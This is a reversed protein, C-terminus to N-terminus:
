SDSNPAEEAQMNEHIAMRAQAAKALTAQTHAANIRDIRREQSLDMFLAIYSFIFFFHGINRPRFFGSEQLNLILVSIFLWKWVQSRNLRTVNKFYIMIMCILLSLGPIGTQNLIDIYGEHAQNPIWVFQDFLPQLHAADMVWFGGIGWGTWIRDLTLTFVSGWLEIRGTFTLDKGFLGFFQVLFDRAFVITLIMMVGATLIVSTGYFRAFPPTGIWRASYYTAMVALLVLGAMFATTSRAGFYLLITLGLMFYHLINVAQDKHYSIIALWIIISFLMIQGLNNKTPALGRWAPFEWQTAEHVFLIALLSLPVYVILVIRLSRLAVDSWRFHVLAALCIICEGFLNIFRKFSVVTHASWLVSALAWLLFLTLFKERAIFSFIIEQKGWLSILSLVFLISLFQNVPNSTAITEVQHLM